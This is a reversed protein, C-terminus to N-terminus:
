NTHRDIVSILSSSVNALGQDASNRIVTLLAEADDRTIKIQGAAITAVVNEITINTIVTAMMRVQGMIEVQASAM